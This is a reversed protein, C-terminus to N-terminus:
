RQRRYISLGNGFDQVLSYTTSRIHLQSLPKGQNQIFDVILIDTMEELNMIAGHPRMAYNMLSGRASNEAAEGDAYGPPPAFNRGKAAEYSVAFFYGISTENALFPLLM